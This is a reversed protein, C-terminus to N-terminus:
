FRHALVFSAVAWAIGIIGIWLAAQRILVAGPQGRRWVSGGVILLACAIVVIGLAADSNM